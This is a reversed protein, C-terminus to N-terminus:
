KKARLVSAYSNTAAAAPRPAASAVPAPVPAPAPAPTPAAAAAASKSAAPSSAPAPAAASTASPAAVSASAPAAAAASAVPVLSNTDSSYRQNNLEVKGTGLQVCGWTSFPTNADPRSLLWVCDVTCSVPPVSANLTDIAGAVSNQVVCCLVVCVLYFFLLFLYITRLSHTAHFPPCECAAVAGGVSPTPLRKRQRDVDPQQCPVASAGASASHAVRQATCVDGCWWVCEDLEICETYVCVETEPKAWVTCSKGHAFSGFTKFEVKQQSWVFATLVLCLCACRVLVVVCAM